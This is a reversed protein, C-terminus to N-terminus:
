VSYGKCQENGYIETLIKDIKSLTERISLSSVNINYINCINSIKCISAYLDVNTQYLFPICEPKYKQPNRSKLRNWLADESDIYLNIYLINKFPTSLYLEEPIIHVGNIISPIGKRQQRKIINIISSKMIRCQQRAMDYSLFIDHAYIEESFSKSVSALYSNYGRLIERMIDTEEVLRFENYIQFLENSITTKGVGPVGSILIILDRPICYRKDM